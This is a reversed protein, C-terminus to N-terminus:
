SENYFPCNGFLCEKNLESYDCLIQDSTELQINLHKAIFKAAQQLAIFSDRKCCRPGGHDAIIRLTDSTFQNAQRWSLESVPTIKAYVSLFIGNGVAAGCTGWFGCIGGPVKDARERAKKLATKKKEGEDKANYCTTLLVAPVLFHHEPGHMNFLPSKMLDNALQIPDEVLSDLCYQEIWDNASLGHCNDCVFHGNSCKAETDFDSGCVACSLIESESLYVIAAGCILCGTRFIM